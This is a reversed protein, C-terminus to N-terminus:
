NFKYGLSLQLISNKIGLSNSVGLFTLNEDIQTMGLTYRGQLFLQKTVDFTAGFLLSVDTTSFAKRYNITQGAITYTGDKTPDFETTNSISSIIGNILTLKTNANVTFGFQPGFEFSLKSIPKYNVYFPINLYGLTIDQISTPGGYFSGARNELKAGQQSYLLEANLGFNDNLVYNGGFGIHFGTKGINTINNPYEASLNNLNLGGKIFFNVQANLYTSLFILLLLNKKM